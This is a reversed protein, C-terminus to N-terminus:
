MGVKKGQFKSSSAAGLKFGPGAGGELSHGETSRVWGDMRQQDATKFASRLEICQLTFRAIRANLNRDFLQYDSDFSELAIVMTRVNPWVVLLPSPAVGLERSYCFSSLWAEASEISPYATYRLRRALLASFYLEIPFTPSETHFYQSITHSWGVPNLKGIGVRVNGRLSEPNFLVSMKNSVNNLEALVLHAAARLPDYDWAM